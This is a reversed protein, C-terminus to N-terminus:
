SSLATIQRAEQPSAVERGLEKAIRVAKDVLEANSKALTGKDDLYPCDEMGVRIHGGLLISQTLIQWHTPPDMNSVSYKFNEPTHDHMYQLAKVTSPTWTGGPWGIFFTTWVPTDLINKKIM